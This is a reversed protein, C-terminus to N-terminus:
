KKYYDQHYDEARWFTQAPEILALFRQGAHQPQAALEAVLARAQALQEADATFIATRYQSERDVSEGPRGWPDCQAFFDLLLQQYSIKAPDFVVKVSEAHGTSGGCVQRYTPHDTTGNM